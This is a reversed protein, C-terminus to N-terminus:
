LVSAGQSGHYVRELRTEKLAYLVSRIEEVRGPDIKGCWGVGVDREGMRVKVPKLYDFLDPCTEILEVLYAASDRSVHCISRLVYRRLKFTCHWWASPLSVDPFREKVIFLNKAGKSMYKGLYGEASVRVSRVEEASRDGSWHSRPVVSELVSFWLERYFEPRYVWRWPVLAGQFLMHLHLALEGRESMRDEQIETVCVIEGSCGASVLARKLKQIVVKVIRQWDETVAKLMDADMGPVTLTLFSLRSRGYRDQLAKAANKVVKSGHATIGMTGRKHRKPLLSLGIPDLPRGTIGEHLPVCCLGRDPHFCEDTSKIFDRTAQMGHVSVATAWRGAEAGDVRAKFGSPQLEKCRSVGFQGNKWVKGVFSQCVVGHLM